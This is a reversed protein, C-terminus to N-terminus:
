MSLPLLKKEVKDYPCNWTSPNMKDGLIQKNVVNEVLEIYLKLGQSPPFEILIVGGESNAIGELLEMTLLKSGVHNEMHLVCPITQMM